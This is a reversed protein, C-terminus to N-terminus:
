NVLQMLIAKKYGGARLRCFYVGSAARRGAGTRGDWAVGHWGADLTGGALRRVMRGSSDYVALDAAGSRPIYFKVETGGSFPNPSNKMLMVTAPRSDDHIGAPNSISVVDMQAPANTGLNYPEGAATDIHHALATTTCGNDELIERGIYDVAVIDRGIILSNAAFQPSGTPGGTHIGFLADIISVCQKEYIPPISHLAAIYPDCDYPHLQDPASCTGFHNKLCLTVGAVGHNKLCSLNVLYDSRDTLITSISQTTGNVDWTDESYGVGSANTGFCRYGESTRRITYGAYTLETNTRDYIIVNNTNFPTGDFDMQYLGDRVAFAVEPHSPLQPSACNVKIAVVDTETIGPFLSKWAEGVNGLGTLAMIGCDMMSQVVGEDILLGSTASTDEIVVVRSLDAPPLSSLLSRPYILGGAGAISAIKLFTRRDIGPSFSGDNM